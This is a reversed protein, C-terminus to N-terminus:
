QDWCQVAHQILLFIGHFRFVDSALQVLRKGELQESKLIFQPLRTYWVYWMFGFMVDCWSLRDSVSVEFWIGHAMHSMSEFLNQVHKSLWLKFQTRITYRVSLRNQMVSACFPVKTGNNIKRETETKGQIWKKAWKPEKIEAPGVYKCYRNTEKAMWWAMKNIKRKIPQHYKESKKLPMANTYLYYIRNNQSGLCKKLVNWTSFIHEQFCVFLCVYECM